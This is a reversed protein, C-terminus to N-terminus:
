DQQCVKPNVDPGWLYASRDGIQGPPAQRLEVATLGSIGFITINYHAVSNKAKNAPRFVFAVTGYAATAVPPVMQSGTMNAIYNNSAQM